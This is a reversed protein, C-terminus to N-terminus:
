EDSSEQRQPYGEALLRHGPGGGRRGSKSAPGLWGERRAIRVWDRMTTEPRKFQEGLRRLVGRGARTEALYAVAVDRLLNDPLKPRGPRPRPQEDLGHAAVDRPAWRALLADFTDGQVLHLAGHAAEAALRSPSLARLFSSTIGAPPTTRTTPEITLSRVVLGGGQEAFVWRAKWDGDTQSVAVVADTSVAEEPSVGAAAEAARRARKGVAGPALPSGITQLVIRRSVRQDPIVREDSTPAGVVASAEGLARGDGSAM